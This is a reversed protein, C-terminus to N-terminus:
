FVKGKCIIMWDNLGGDRNFLIGFGDSRHNLIGNKFLLKELDFSLIESKNEALPAFANCLACIDNEGPSVNLKIYKGRM